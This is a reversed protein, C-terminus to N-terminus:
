GAGGYSEHCQPAVARMGQFYTFQLPRARSLHEHKLGIAPIEEATVPKAPKAACDPLAQLAV